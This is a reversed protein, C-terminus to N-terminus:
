KRTGATSLAAITFNGFLLCTLLKGRASSTYAIAVNCLLPYWSSPYGFFCFVVHSVNYFSYDIEEGSVGSLEM